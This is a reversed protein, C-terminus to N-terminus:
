PGEGPTLQQPDQRVAPHPGIRYIHTNGTDGFLLEQGPNGDLEMAFIYGWVSPWGWRFETRIGTPGSGDSGWLAFRNPDTELDITAPLRQRQGWVIFAEGEHLWSGSYQNNRGQGTPALLVLDDVGDGDMDALDHYVGLFDDSDIQQVTVNPDRSLQGTTGYTLYAQGIGDGSLLDDIGDANADGVSFGAHRAGIRYNSAWDSATALRRVASQGFVVRVPIAPVHWAGIIIDDIPLGTEGNLDGNLNGAIVAAGYREGTEGFLYLDVNAPVLTMANRSWDIRSVVYVEGGDPSANNPGDALLAGIIVDQRGDGNTDGLAVSWGARDGAEAGRFTMDPPRTAFDWVSGLEARPRGLVLYAEGTEDISWDPRVDGPMGFLIDEFGDGNVDGTALFRTGHVKIYNWNWPYHTVTLIRLDVDSFSKGRLSDLTADFFVGVYTERPSALRDYGRVILDPIGNGDVDGAVAVWAHGLEPSATVTGPITRHPPDVGIDKDPHNAGAPSLLGLALLGAVLSLRFVYKKM